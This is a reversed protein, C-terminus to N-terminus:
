EDAPPELLTLRARGSRMAPEPESERDHLVDHLRMAPRDVRLARAFPLARDEGLLQGERDGPRGILGLAAVGAGTFGVEADPIAVRRQLASTSTLSMPM